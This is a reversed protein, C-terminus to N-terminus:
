TRRDDAIDFAVHINTVFSVKKGNRECHGFSDFLCWVSDEVVQEEVGGGGM